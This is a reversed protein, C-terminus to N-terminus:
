APLIAIARLTPDGAGDITGGLQAVRQLLQVAEATVVEGPCLAPIGPPYPCLLEACIGGLAQPLPVRDRRPAFWAERPSLCVQPRLQAASSPTPLDLPQVPVSPPALRAFAAILKDIDERANGCGILFTLHRLSPMEPVVGLADCCRADAEFGTMGWGDVRVTLRTADLWPIDGAGFTRLGPFAQLRSRAEAALELTKGLWAKGQLALQRRSGDLSALLLLNPSSSQVMKLAARVRERDVRDGRQHLLASQTVSFAVKHASQVVLDAGCQLASPPLDPHFGLHAGHAADVLALLGHRHAIAVLQALDGCIGHYNPSTLLVAKAQPYAAIAAELTCPAIGGDIAYDAHEEPALYVPMAGTLILGAIASKHCNRGILITDGPACTALLMAQVGATSGNVLFWTRDAGYASAALTEAEAIAAEIEPLEPVDARFVAEGLLTVLERDLARGRKHGPMFFPARDDDLAARMADILPAYADRDRTM